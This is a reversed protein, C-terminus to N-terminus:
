QDNHTGKKSFQRDLGNAWKLYPTNTNRNNWQLFEKFIRTLLKMDSKFRLFLNQMGKNQM